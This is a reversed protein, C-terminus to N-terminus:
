QSGQSNTSKVVIVVNRYFHIRIIPYYRYRGNGSQPSAMEGLSCADLLEKVFGVMGYTHSLIKSGIFWKIPFRVLKPSHSSYRRLSFAISGLLSDKRPHLIQSKPRYRRGDPWSDMYGTRWDEIAYLGGPKLHNQFLHWFSVRTFRGIHSCDDIIVDFGDPAQEGAICDLLATDQQSGQYIHSRGTPDDIHVPNCDVGIITANEFYDRWFLLSAGQLVGLELLKIEKGVLPAFYWEYGGALFSLKSIDLGYGLPKIRKHMVRNDRGNCVGDSSKEVTDRRAVDRHIIDM